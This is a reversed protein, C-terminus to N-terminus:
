APGSGSVGPPRTRVTGDEKPRLLRRLRARLVNPDSCNELDGELEKIERLLDGIETQYRRRTDTLETSAERLAQEAGDARAAEEDRKTRLGGVRIGLVMATLAAIGLGIALVTM